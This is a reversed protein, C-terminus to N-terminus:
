SRRDVIKMRPAPPSVLAAITTVLEAPDMPKAVHVHYGAALARDVDDPTAYGTVSIAPMQGGRDPPLSRVQRILAYGNEDPMGIDSVLVNPIADAAASRLLEMAEASSSVATVRALTYELARVTLERADIEDDVVLVHVGVLSPVVGGARPHNDEGEANGDLSPAVPLEITFVSGKKLGPSAASVTGGHLEVLERVLALGLGLGGHRRTSSADDQRFREFVHPLFDAEIGQGTDSVSIAVRSGVAALRVEISGGPETFKVANSLLNWVIQQLRDPDGVVNPTQPDLATAIAIRRATAAPMVVDVAALVVSLLDIPRMELRLKGAVIRAMDLMDDIMKAQAAANREIVNLARELLERDVHDRALLIRSWGLVANLPTRIEHSLTSLFDDKARLAKEATARASRQAEIQKRLQAESALRESVDELVTMTGIIQEGAFLPGIHGSQPMQAFPLVPNSPQMPIVYRHLGYSILTIRGVLGQEYYENMGRAAADPYVEFISRGVVQEAAHGSHLEMWRNWVIVRFETDTAFFGERWEDTFWRALAVQVQALDLSPDSSM